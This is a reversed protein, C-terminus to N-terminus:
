FCVTPVVLGGCFTLSVFVPEAARFIPDMFALGCNLTVGVHPALTAGPAVQVMLAVNEGVVFPVVVPVIVIMSLAEVLGCTISSAPVPM